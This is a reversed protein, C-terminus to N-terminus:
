LTKATMSQVPIEFGRRKAETVISAAVEFYQQELAMEKLAIIEADTEVALLHARGNESFDHLQRIFQFRRHGISSM